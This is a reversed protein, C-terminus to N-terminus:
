RDESRPLQPPNMLELRALGTFFADLNADAVSAASQEAFSEFGALTNRGKALLEEGNRYGAPSHQIDLYQTLVSEVSSLYDLMKVSTAPLSDPDARETRALLTPVIACARQLSERTPNDRVGMALRAVRTNAALAKRTPLRRATGATAQQTVVGTLLAAGLAVLAAGPVSGLVGFVALFAVVFGALAAIAVTNSPM